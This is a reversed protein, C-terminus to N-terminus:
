HLGKLGENGAELAAEKIGGKRQRIYGRCGM